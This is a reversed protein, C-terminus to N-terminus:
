EQHGDTLSPPDTERHSGKLHVGRKQM